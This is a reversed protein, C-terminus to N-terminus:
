LCGELPRPSGAPEPGSCEDPAPEQQGISGNRGPRRGLGYHGAAAKLVEEGPKAQLLGSVSSLWRRMHDPGQHGVLRSSCYVRGRFDLDHELWIPKGAVEEAQQM